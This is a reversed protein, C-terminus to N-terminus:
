QMDKFQKRSFHEPIKPASPWTRRTTPFPGIQKRLTSMRGIHKFYEGLWVIKWSSQANFKSCMHLEVEGSSKLEAYYGFEEHFEKSKIHPNDSYVFFDDSLELMAVGDLYTKNTKGNFHTFENGLMALRIIAIEPRSELIRMSTEIFGDDHSLSWDDQLHLIYDGRAAKLGANFSKGMGGHPLMLLADVEFLDRIELLANHYKPNSGDDCIIIEMQERPFKCNKLFSYITQALYGTRNHSFIVVSLAIM